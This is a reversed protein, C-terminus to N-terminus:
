PCARGYMAYAERRTGSIESVRSSTSWAISHPKAWWVAGEAGPVQEANALGDLLHLGHVDLDGGPYLLHELGAVLAEVLGLVARSSWNLGTLLLVLGDALVRHVDGEVPQPVLAFLEGAVVRRAQEVEAVANEAQLEVGLTVGDVGPRDLHAVPRELRQLAIVHDPEDDAVLSPVEGHPGVEALHGM